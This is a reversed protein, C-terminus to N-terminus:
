RQGTLLRTPEVTPAHETVSGIFEWKGESTWSYVFGTPGDIFVSMPNPKAPTTATSAATKHLSVTAGASGLYKWGCGSFYALELSNGDPKQLSLTQTPAASCQQGDAPGGSATAIALPPKAMKQASTLDDAACSAVAFVAIALGMRGVLHTRSAVSSKM